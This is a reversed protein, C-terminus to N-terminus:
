WWNVRHNERVRAASESDLQACKVLNIYLTVCVECLGRGGQSTTKTSHRNGCCMRWMQRVGLDLLVDPSEGLLQRATAASSSVRRVSLMAFVISEGLLVMSHFNPQAPCGSALSGKFPKM